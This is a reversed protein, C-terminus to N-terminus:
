RPMDPCVYPVSVAVYTQARDRGALTLQLEDASPMSVEAEVPITEEIWRIKDGAVGWQTVRFTEFCSDMLLTRDPLFVMISGRAHGPTTSVWVRGIFAPNAPEAHEPASPPLPPAPPASSAPPPPSCAALAALCSLALLPMRGPSLTGHM